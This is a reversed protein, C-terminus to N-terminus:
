ICQPFNAPRRINEICESLCLHNSVWIGRVSAVGGSNLHEVHLFYTKEANSPTWLGGYEPLVTKGIIFKCRPQAWYATIMGGLGRTPRPIVTNNGRHKLPNISRTCFTCVHECLGSASVGRVLWGVQSASSSTEEADNNSAKRLSCGEVGNVTGHVLCQRCFHPNTKCLTTAFIYVGSTL